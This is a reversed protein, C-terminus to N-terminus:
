MTRKSERPEMHIYLLQLKPAPHSQLNHAVRLTSHLRVKNMTWQYAAAASAALTKDFSQRLHTARGSLAFQVTLVFM